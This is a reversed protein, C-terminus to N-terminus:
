CNKPWKDRHLTKAGFFIVHPMMLVEEELGIMKPM